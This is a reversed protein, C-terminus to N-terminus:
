DVSPGNPVVLLRDSLFNKSRPIIPVLLFAILMIHRIRTDALYQSAVYYARIIHKNQIPKEALQMLLRDIRDIEQAVDVIEIRCREM